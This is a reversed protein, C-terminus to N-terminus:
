KKYYYFCDDVNEKFEREEKKRKQIEFVWGLIV